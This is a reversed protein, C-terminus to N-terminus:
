VLCYNTREEVPAQASVVDGIRIPGLFHTCKHGGCRASRRGSRGLEVINEDVLALNHVDDITMNAPEVYQLHTKLLDMETLGGRCLRVLCTDAVAEHEHMTLRRKALLPDRIGDRAESPAM